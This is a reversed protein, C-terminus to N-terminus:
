SRNKEQEPIWNKRVAGNNLLHSLWEALYHNAQAKEDIQYMQDNPYRYVGALQRGQSLTVVEAMRADDYIRVTLEVCNMPAPVGHLTKTLQITTTYRFREVVVIDVDIQNCHKDVWCFQFESDEACNLLRQLRVYNAECLAAHKTLDPIYKKMGVTSKIERPEISVM